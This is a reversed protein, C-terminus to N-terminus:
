KNWKFNAISPQISGRRKIEEPEFDLVTTGDEIKGLRNTVGANFLLMEAVSTKGSGGHGVLAYTRQSKLAESM